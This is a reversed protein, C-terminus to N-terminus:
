QSNWENPTFEAVPKNMEFGMFQRGRLILRGTMAEGLQFFQSESVEFEEQSKDAYEVQIFYKGEFLEDPDSPFGMAGYKDYTYRSFIRAEKTTISANKSARDKGQAFRHGSILLFALWVIAGTFVLISLSCVIIGPIIAGTLAATSVMGAGAFGLVGSILLLIIAAM